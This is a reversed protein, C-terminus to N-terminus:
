LKGLEQAGIGFDPSETMKGQLGIRERWGIEGGGL